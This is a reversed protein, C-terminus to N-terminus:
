ESQSKQFITTTLAFYKVVLWYPILYSFFTWILNWGHGYHVYGIRIGIAEFFTTILTFAFIALTRNFRCCEIFYVMFSALIPYFGVNAFISSFTKVNMVPILLFYGFQFGIQNVIFALMSAFPFTILFVKKDKNILYIAFCWPIVFGLVINVIIPKM